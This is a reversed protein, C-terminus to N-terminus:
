RRLLIALMLTIWSTLLIGIVWNFKSEFASFRTEIRSELANFRSDMRSELSDLRTEITGLRSNIQEYAGELRAMRVDLADTAM